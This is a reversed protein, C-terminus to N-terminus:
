QNGKLECWDAFEQKKEDTWWDGTWVDGDDDIEAYLVNAYDKVADLMDKEIMGARGTPNGEEVHWWEACLADIIKATDPQTARVTDAIEEFTDSENWEAGAIARIKEEINM